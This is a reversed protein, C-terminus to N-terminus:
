GRMELANRKVSAVTNILHAHVLLVFCFLWRADLMLRTSPGRECHRIICRRQCSQHEKKLAVFQMNLMVCKCAANAISTVSFNRFWLFKHSLIHMTCHANQPWFRFKHEINKKDNSGKCVASRATDVSFIEHCIGACATCDTCLYLTHHSHTDCFGNIETLQYCLLMDKRAQSRLHIIIVRCRIRFANAKGNQRTVRHRRHHDHYRWNFRVVDGWTITLWHM